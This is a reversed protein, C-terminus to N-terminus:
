ERGRGPARWHDLWEAAWRQGGLGFALALGLVIGAFLILFTLRIIEGGIELEDLAILIVFVVIASKALRGLLEAHRMEINRGYTAISSGVFNAFYTGFALILVALMARPLFLVVRSLMDTAYTLDLSNFAILLSVFIVLWYVLWALIGITDSRIGGRELFADVGARQSLVHLNAARLAKRVVFRSVKALVWGALVILLAVAVKPLVTGVQVLLARVPEFYLNVQDM